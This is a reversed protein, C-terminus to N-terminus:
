GASRTAPDLSPFQRREVRPREGRELRRVPNAPILGERVASGLLRGLVTLCGRITWAAYPKGEVRVTRGERREFRVGRQLESVLEAVDEVTLSQLRRRGFRPLVHLRLMSAYLDLTKPRLRSRQRGLWAAAYEAVTLRSPAVREGRNVRAVLDARVQRAERLTPVTRWRQRGDSDLFWVEYRVEGM